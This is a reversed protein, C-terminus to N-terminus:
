DSGRLLSLIEKIIEGMTPILVLQGAEKLTMEPYDYQLLVWLLKRLNTASRKALKGLVEEIDCDFAEELDATVTLNLPPLQYENGDSLKVMKGKPTTLPDM